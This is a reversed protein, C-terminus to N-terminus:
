ILRTHMCDHLVLNYLVSDNRNANSCNAFKTALLRIHHFRTHKSCVFLVGSYSSSLLGEVYKSM